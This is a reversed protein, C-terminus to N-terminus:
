GEKLREIALGLENNYVPERDIEKERARPECVTAPQDLAEIGAPGAAACREEAGM